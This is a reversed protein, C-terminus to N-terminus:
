AGRPVARVGTVAAHCVMCLAVLNSAEDAGGASRPQVHHAQLPKRKKCHVCRWGDREFVQRTLYRWAAPTIAGPRHPM